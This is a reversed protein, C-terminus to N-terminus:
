HDTKEIIINEKGLIWLITEIRNIFTHNNKVNEMLEKVLEQNQFELGKKMLNELNTDYLLKGDFLDNVTKSNTIGMKGYSINKFIRCPIYGHEVQWNSQLAPAIISEQILKKNDEFTRNNKSKSNFTGGFTNFQINHKACIKGFQTWPNVAYGVFNIKREISIVPEGFEHPLLDTAWPFYVTRDSYYEVKKGPILTDRGVCDLTFVQLNFLHDSPIDKYKSHDSNHLLYISTSNKPINSDVQGETIFFSNNFDFNAPPVSFWFTEYGLHKFAKEFGAHIYSHTHSHLPHGWIVVKNLKM